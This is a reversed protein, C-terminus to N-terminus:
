ITEEVSRVGREVFIKFLKAEDVLHLNVEAPFYRSLMDKQWEYCFVHFLKPEYFAMAQKFRKLRAIDGEVFSLYYNGDKMADCDVSFSKGTDFSKDFLEKLITKHHGKQKLMFMMSKGHINTPLCYMNEYNNDFTLFEFQEKYHSTEASLLLESLASYKNTFAIAQKVLIKQPSNFNHAIIDEVNLVMKSEGFNQWQQKGKEVHYVMYIGGPSFLVGYCRTHAVKNMHSGGDIRKLDTSTYYFTDAFTLVKDSDKLTLPPKQHLWCPVKLSFMFALTEAQCLKRRIQQEDHLDHAGRVPNGKTLEMFHAYAEPSIEELKKIGKASLSVYKGTSALIYPIVYNEKEMRKIIRLIMKRDAILDVSRKPFVGGGLALVLMVDRGYTDHGFSLKGATLKKEAM